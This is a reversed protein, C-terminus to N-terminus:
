DMSATHMMAQAPPVSASEPVAENWETHGTTEQGGSLSKFMVQRAFGGPDELENTLDVPLQTRWTAWNNEIAMLGEAVSTDIAERDRWREVVTRYLAVSQNQLIDPQSGPQVQLLGARRM